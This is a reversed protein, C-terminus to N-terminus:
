AAAKDTQGASLPLDERYYLDRQVDECVYTAPLPAMARLLSHTYPFFNFHPNFTYRYERERPVVIILRKAAIRRLESIAQRYDLIHEIVHTCVVTDFSNDPFPLSEIKASFYEVGPLSAADNVAFDVGVLKELGPNLRNIEALLYATGCGVDCVSRGVIEDAIRTICAESNDTGDHVRPHSLYLSEYEENTLDAARARFDALREIHSGWVAMALKKFIFSDRLLPPLLDELVFRIKNTTERRM